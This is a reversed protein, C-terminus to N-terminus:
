SRTCPWTWALHVPVYNHVGITARAAPLPKQGAEGGCPSMVHVAQSPPELSEPDATGSLVLLQEADGLRWHVTEAGHLVRFYLTLSGVAQACDQTCDAAWRATAVGDKVVDAHGPSTGVDLGMRVVPVPSPCNAMAIMIRAVCPEPEGFTFNCVRLGADNAKADWAESSSACQGCFTTAVASMGGLLAGGKAHCEDGSFTQVYAAAAAETGRGWEASVARFSQLFKGPQLGRHPAAQAGEGGGGLVVRAPTAPTLIVEYGYHLQLQMRTDPHVASLPQFAFSSFDIEHPLGGVAVRVSRMLELAHLTDPDVHHFSIPPLHLGVPVSGPPPRQKHIIVGPAEAHFTRIWELAVGADLLCQAVRVDGPWNWKYTRECSEFVPLAAVLAARSVAIGAGGNAFLPQRKGPVIGELHPAAIFAYGLYHPDDPSRKALAALLQPVFVYSDDDVMFVWEPLPEGRDSMSAQASASFFAEALARLIPVARWNGGSFIRETPSPQFAHSVVPTMLTEAMGDSTDSFFVVRRARRLWTDSQARCRTRHFRQCTMVGVVVNSMSSAGDAVIHADAGFATGDVAGVVAVQRQPPQQQHHYSPAHSCQSCSCQWRVALVVLVAVALILSIPRERAHRLLYLQMRAGLM